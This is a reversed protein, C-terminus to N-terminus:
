YGWECVLNKELIEEDEAGGWMQSIATHHTLTRTGDENKKFIYEDLNGDATRRDIYCSFSNNEFNCKAEKLLIEGKSEIMATPHNIDINNVNITKTGKALQYIGNDNIVVYRVREMKSSRVCEVILDEAPRAYVSLSAFSLALLCLSKKM